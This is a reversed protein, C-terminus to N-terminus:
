SQGILGFFEQFTRFYLGDTLDSAKIQYVKKGSNLQWNQYKSNVYHNPLFYGQEPSKDLLVVAWNEKSKVRDIFSEGVTWVPDKTGQLNTAVHVSLLCSVKGKVHLIKKSGPHEREVIVDPQNSLKEVFRNFIRQHEPLTVEVIEGLDIIEGSDEVGM